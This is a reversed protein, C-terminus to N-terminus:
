PRELRHRPFVQVLNPQSHAQAQWFVDPMDCAVLLDLVLDVCAHVLSEKGCESCRMGPTCIYVRVYTLRMLSRCVGAVCQRFHLHRMVGLSNVKQLHTSSKPVIALAVDYVPLSLLWYVVQQLLMELAYWYM